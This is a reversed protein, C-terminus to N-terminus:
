SETNLQTTNIAPNNYSCDKSSNPLSTIVDSRKKYILIYPASEDSLKFTVQLQQKEVVSSDNILYWQDNVKVNSIYHGSIVQEGEHCLLM